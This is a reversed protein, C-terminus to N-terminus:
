FKRNAGAQNSKFVVVRPLTTAGGVRRSYRFRSAEAHLKGEYHRLFDVLKSLLNFAIREHTPPDDV